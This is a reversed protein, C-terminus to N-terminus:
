TDGFQLLWTDLRDIAAWCPASGARKAGTQATRRAISRCMPIPLWYRCTGLDPLQEQYHDLIQRAAAALPDQSFPVLLILTGAPRTQRRQREM